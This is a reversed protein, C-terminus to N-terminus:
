RTPYEREQQTLIAHLTMTAWNDEGYLDHLTVYAQRVAQVPVLVECRPCSPPYQYLPTNCKECTM